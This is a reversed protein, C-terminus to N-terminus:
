CTLKQCNPCYFSSRGAQKIRVITYNCNFCKKGERDYVLFHEQVQGKNGYADRFHQRSAGKWKIAATLVKKLAKHLRKAGKASIQSAPTQPNLKALFLAENAYINGIGGIEQQDMLLSKIPRRTSQLIILFQEPTLEELADPGLQKTIDNLTIKIKSNYNKSKDKLGQNKVVKIWGFRRIDNFFLRDKDAFKIIVRTHKHPLGKIDNGKKFILQGTMKLHIALSLPTELDIVIIKAFRRINSIRKNLIVMKDGHFSDSKRVIIDSITKGVILSQLQKKIIEVEPLEPM